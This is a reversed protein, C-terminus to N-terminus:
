NIQETRSHITDKGNLRYENVFLSDNSFYPHYYFDKYRDYVIEKSGFRASSKKSSAHDFSMGMGTHMFTEFKDAHCQRCMQMGVYKVTDNLSAYLPIDSVDKKNSCQFSLLIVLFFIIARIQRTMRKLVESAFLSCLINM